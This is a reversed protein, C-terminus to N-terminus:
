NSRRSGAAPCSGAPRQDPFEDSRRRDGALGCPDRGRQVVERSLMAKNTANPDNVYRNLAKLVAGASGGIVAGQQRLEDAQGELGALEKRIWEDALQKSELDRVEMAASLRNNSPPAAEALVPLNDTPLWSGLLLAALLTERWAAPARHAKREANAGHCQSQRPAPTTDEGATTLIDLIFDM